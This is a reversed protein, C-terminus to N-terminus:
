RNEGLEAEMKPHLKDEAYEQDNHVYSIFVDYLLSWDEPYRRTVCPQRYIWLKLHERKSVVLIVLVLLLLVFIISAASIEAHMTPCLTSTLTKGLPSPPSCQFEIQQADEIKAM